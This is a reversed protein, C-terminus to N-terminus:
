ENWTHTILIELYSSIQSEVRVREVVGGGWGGVGGKGEMNM